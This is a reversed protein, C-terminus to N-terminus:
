LLKQNLILNKVKLLILLIKKTEQISIERLKLRLSYKLKLKCKISVMYHDSPANLKKVFYPINNVIGVQLSDEGNFNDVYKLLSKNSKFNFDGFITYNKNELFNIIKNCIDNDKNKGPVVYTFVINNNVIFLNKEIKVDVHINDRIFLLNRGDSYKKFGNFLIFELHNTCDILYIFDFNNNNIVNKICEMKVVYKSKEKNLSQCNWILCNCILYDDYIKEVNKRYNDYNRIAKNWDNM